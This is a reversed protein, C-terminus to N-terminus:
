VFAGIKGFDGQDLQRDNISVYGETFSGASLNSRQSLVNLLSTKGSGSPGMIAVLETPKVYGSNKQLVQKFHQKGRQIHVPHPLGSDTAMLKESDEALLHNAQHALVKPAPKKVPVFFEINKWELLAQDQTEIMEDPKIEHGSKGRLKGVQALGDKVGFNFEPEDTDLLSGSEITENVNMGTMQDYSSM